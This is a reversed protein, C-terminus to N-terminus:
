TEKIARGLAALGRHRASRVTGASIGMASAIEEDALDLYYKLVLVERKDEPLRDLAKRLLKM